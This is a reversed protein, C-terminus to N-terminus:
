CGPCMEGSCQGWFNARGCSGCHVETRGKNCVGQSLYHFNGNEDEFEKGRSCYCRRWPLARESEGDFQDSFIFVVNGSPPIETQIEAAYLTGQVAWRVYHTSDSNNFFSFYVQGSNFPEDYFPAYFGNLLSPKEIVLDKFNQFVNSESFESGSVLDMMEVLSLYGDVQASTNSDWFNESFYVEHLFESVVVLEEEDFHPISKSFEKFGPTSYFADDERSCSSCVVVFSIIM